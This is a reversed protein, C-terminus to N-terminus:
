PAGSEMQYKVAVTPMPSTIEQPMSPISRQKCQLLIGILNEIMIM